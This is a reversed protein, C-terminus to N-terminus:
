LNDMLCVQPPRTLPSNIMMALSSAQENCFLADQPNIEWIARKSRAGVGISIEVPFPDTDFDPERPTLVVQIGRDTPTFELFCRATVNTPIFGSALIVASFDDVTHLSPNLRVYEDLGDRDLAISVLGGAMLFLISTLNHDNLIHNSIYTYARYVNNTGDEALRIIINVTDRRTISIELFSASWICLIYKVYLPPSSETVAKPMSGFATDPPTQAHM